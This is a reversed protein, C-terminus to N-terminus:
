TANFIGVGLELATLHCGTSCLARLEAPTALFRAAIQPPLPEEMM